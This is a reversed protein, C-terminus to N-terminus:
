PKENSENKRLLKNKLRAVIVFVIMTVVFLAIWVPIGWGSFPILEGSYCMVAIMVPRTLSISLIFYRYSMSTIGAILCIIDDPFFPFLMAILFLMRGKENILTAYKDTKEEGMVWVCLKRGFIKGLMFTIISGVITGITMFIFAYTAGYLMTGLLAIIASPIPLFLVEFLVLGIYVLVGWQKTDRIMTRLAEVSNCKALVGTVDLVVYCLLCFACFVSSLIFFKYIAEHKTANLGPVTVGLTAFLIIACLLVIRPLDRFYFCSLVAMGLNLLTVLAKTIVTKAAHSM